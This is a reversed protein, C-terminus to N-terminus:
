AGVLIWVVVASLVLWGAYHSVAILTGPVRSGGVRVVLAQPAASFFTVAHYVLFVLSVVNLLVIGPRASWELFAQYAGEGQIVAGVLFLLYVIFWAVFVSSLERMMFFFYSANSLWWLTPVPQPLTASPNPTQSSAQSM